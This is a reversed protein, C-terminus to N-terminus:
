ELLCVGEPIQIGSTNNTNEKLKWGIYYRKGHSAKKTIGNNTIWKSFKVMQVNQMNVRNFLALMEAPIIRDDENDTFEYYESLFEFLPNNDNFYEDSNERVEDPIPLTELRNYYMRAHKFLLFLLGIKYDLGNIKDELTYDKLRENKTKPSDVFKYPYNLISFRRKSANDLKDLKPIDNCLVFPTFQSTYKINSKYLDRTQIGDNGTLVKIFSINFKQGSSKDSDDPEPVVLMRVGKCNALTPNPQNAKFTSTMFTSETFYYYEGLCEKLWQFLLSKGNGGCGSHVHFKSLKTTFLSLGITNLWYDCLEESGFTSMLIQRIEVEVNKHKGLNLTLGCTKQIYDDPTIARTDNIRIDYVLNNFAFLNQDADILKDIDKVYYCGKLFELVGKIFQASGVKNKCNQCLKRLKKIKETANDDNAVNIKSLENRLHRDIYNIIASCIQNGLLTPHAIGYYVLVNYENYEYWGSVNSYIIKDPNLSYYLRAIDYHNFNEIFNFDQKIASIVQRHKEPNDEKLFELLSPLKKGDNMVKLGDILRNNADEDYKASKTSWKKFIEIDYGENVFIMAISIWSDYNECRSPNLSNLIEEIFEPTINVNNNIRKERKTDNKKRPNLEDYISYLSKVSNDDLTILKSFDSDSNISEYVFKGNNTLIDLGAENNGSYAKCENACDLKYWYHYSYYFTDNNNFSKTKLTKSLEENSNISDYAKVSDSDYVLFKDNLEIMLYNYVGENNLKSNADRDLEDFPKNNWGNERGFVNKKPKSNEQPEGATIKIPIYRLKNAKVFDIVSHPASM